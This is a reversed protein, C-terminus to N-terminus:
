KLGQLPLCVMRGKSLNECVQCPTLILLETYVVIWIILFAFMLLAIILILFGYRERLREMEDFFTKRRENLRLANKDLTGEVSTM